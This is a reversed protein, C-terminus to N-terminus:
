DRELNKWRSKLKKTRTKKFRLKTTIIKSSVAMSITGTEQTVAKKMCFSVRLQLSAMVILVFAMTQM